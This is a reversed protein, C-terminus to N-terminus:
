RVCVRSTSDSLVPRCLVAGSGSRMSETWSSLRKMCLTGGEYVAPSFTGSRQTGLQRHM